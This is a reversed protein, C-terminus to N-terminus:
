CDVTRLSAYTGDTGYTGNTGNTKSRRRSSRQSQRNVNSGDAESIEAIEQAFRTKCAEPFAAKGLQFLTTVSFFNGFYICITQLCTPGSSSNSPVRRWHHVQVWSFLRDNPDAERREQNSRYEQCQGKANARLEMFPQMRVGSVFTM